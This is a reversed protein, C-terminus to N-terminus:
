FKPLTKVPPTSFVEVISVYHASEKKRFSWAAKVTRRVHYVGTTGPIKHAHLRSEGKDSDVFRKPLSNESAMILFARAEPRCKTKFHYLRKLDEDILNDPVGARKVEVLFQVAEGVFSNYPDPAHADLIVLDARANKSIKTDSIDILRRYLVEPRLIQEHTIHAQILNCAEAVLAAEPLPYSDYYARRHGIWFALGQLARELFKPRDPMSYGM